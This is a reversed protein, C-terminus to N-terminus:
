RTWGPMPVKGLDGYLVYPQMAMIEQWGFIGTHPPYLLYVEKKLLFAYGIEILTNPGIYHLIGNKNHNLVLIADSAAIKEGHKRIFDHHIKAEVLRNGDGQHGLGRACVETEEPLLVEHGADTLWRKKELMQQAFYMSGCITIKM